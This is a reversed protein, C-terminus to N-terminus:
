PLRCTEAGAAFDSSACLRVEDECQQSFTDLAIIIEGRVQDLVVPCSHGCGLLELCEFDLGGAEIEACNSAVGVVRVLLPVDPADEITATALEEEIREEFEAVTEGVELVNFCERRTIQCRESSERCWSAIEGSRCGPIGELAIFDVVFAALGADHARSVLLGPGDNARCEFANTNSTGLVLDVRNSTDKCGFVLLALVLLRTM